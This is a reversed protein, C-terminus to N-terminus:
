ERRTRNYTRYAPLLSPSPTAGVILYDQLSTLFVMIKIRGTHPMEVM